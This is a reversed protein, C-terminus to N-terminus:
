WEVDEQSGLSSRTIRRKIQGKNQLVQMPSIQEEPIAAIIAGLVGLENMTRLFRNLSVDGDPKIFRAYTASSMAGSEVIDSQQKNQMIRLSEVRRAIQERADKIKSENRYNM